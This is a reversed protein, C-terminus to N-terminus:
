DTWILYYQQKWIYRGNDTLGELLKAVAACPLKVVKRDYTILGNVEEEVDTLQTYVAASLGRAKAPVVEERYLKQLASLLDTASHFRKYGFMKQSYCHGRVQLSYGGFESLAVVRGKADSRFRYPKFYVHLSKIDGGGQDHWGSAHDVPRSNDLLRIQEVAKLADFQGWGENFPVWLYLSVCNYLHQVTEKLERMYEQRGAEEERAFRRYAHDRFHVGTVLPSSVTVLNYAGGGNVMDQWVLMGLRDCHYYCRLPEIKIHKRRM